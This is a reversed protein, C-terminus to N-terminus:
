FVFGTRLKCFQGNIDYRIIRKGLKNCRIVIELQNRCVWIIILKNITSYGSICLTYYSFVPM